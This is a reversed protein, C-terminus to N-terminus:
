RSPPAPFIVRTRHRFSDPLRVRVANELESFYGECTLTFVIDLRGGPTKGTPEEPPQELTQAMVRCDASIWGFGKSRWDIRIREDGTYTVETYDLTADTRIEVVKPPTQKEFTWARNHYFPRRSLFAATVLVCAVGVVVTVLRQHRSSSVSLIHVRGSLFPLLLDSACIGVILLVALSWLGDTVFHAGQVVRTATLLAGYAIGFCGLGVAIRGFRRRFLLFTAFLYGMTCHGCTFSKGKGPIGPQYFPRYEWVGGFEQIQRPRPRGWYPKLIGNVIVGGGIVGALVIVMWCHRYSQLRPRYRSFFWAILSFLILLVGPATGYEYLFWWPQEDALYWGLKQTYFLASIRRDGDVWELFGTVLTFTSFIALIRYLARKKLIRRTNAPPAASVM